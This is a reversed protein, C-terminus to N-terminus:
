PNSSSLYLQSEKCNLIDEDRRKSDAALTELQQRLEWITADRFAIAQGAEEALAGKEHPWHSRHGAHM